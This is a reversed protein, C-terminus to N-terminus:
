IKRSCHRQLIRTWIIGAVGVAAGAGAGAGALPDQDHWHKMVASTASQAEEQRLMASERLLGSEATIQAIAGKSQAREHETYRDSNDM